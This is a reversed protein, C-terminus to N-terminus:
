TALKEERDKFESKSLFNELSRSELARVERLVSM